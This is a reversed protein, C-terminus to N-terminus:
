KKILVVKANDNRAIQERFNRFDEYEEKPFIGENTNIYRKFILTNDKLKYEAKYEGFKTKLEVNQPMAEILYSEPLFILYEDYDNFERGTTFPNTRNRYRQPVKSLQNFPNVVVIMRNGNTGAYNDAELLITEKFEIRSKDNNFKIEGLSLNNINSFYNKYYNNINDGSQRELYFRDGYQIGRTAIELSAKIKGDKDISYEVLTNQTNEQAKYIHTRLLEGGNPKVALALRDDNTDGIFNFPTIQSTCELWFLDDNEFPVALIVHNGQMSVFDESMDRKSPNNYIVTYYSPIDAVELLAKTYNTLAKCDGYGLRDVDKAPMPKWGGIGLQISVYRTKDQVYQYIKEAKKKNDTENEVLKIIKEKTTEPLENTKSLLSSDMWKGLEEWTSAEGDVGELHFRQLAFRVYPAFKNLSPTYDENKLAPFNTLKFTIANADETKEIPHGDFNYEKYRFGLDSPYSIQISSEEISVYTSPVPFWQPIFATNSSEITSTYIITFPYSIPTYSLSLIRNDTYISFGDAVSQDKFGSRKIKKVEKGSANYVIAQIAKIKNSKDYYEGLELSKWGLENLLTVQITKQITMKRQSHVKIEKHNKHFVMNANETLESAISLASTKKDQSFSLGFCFLFIYILNKQNKM